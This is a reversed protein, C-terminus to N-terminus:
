EGEIAEEEKKLEKTQLEALKDKTAKLQAKLAEKELNIQPTPEPEIIVEIEPEPHKIAGSELGKLITIYDRPRFTMLLKKKTELEILIKDLDFTEPQSILQKVLKIQASCENLDSRNTM